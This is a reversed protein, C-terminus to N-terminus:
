EPKELKVPREPIKPKEQPRENDSQTAENIVKLDGPLLQQIKLEPL